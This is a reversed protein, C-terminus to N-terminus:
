TPSSSTYAVFAKICHGQEMEFFGGISCSPPTQLDMIGRLSAPLAPVEVLSDCWLLELSELRPLLVSRGPTTCQDSADQTRGTLKNCGGISLKRLAVLHRFVNEPWHVLADCRRITLDELEPFISEQGQAENIDWWTELNPMMRLSLDKLKKFTFPPDGLVCAIYIKWEPWAFFKYLQYSGCHLFAERNQKIGDHPKLGELVKHHHQPERSSPDRWQLKLETLSKKNQLNAEQADTETVNELQDIELYGGLDLLRLEGMSSCSSGTYRSCLTNTDAPFHSM